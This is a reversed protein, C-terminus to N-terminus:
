LPAVGDDHGTHRTQVTQSRRFIVFGHHNIDDRPLPHGQGIKEPAQRFNLVFAIINGKRPATKPHPPINHINKRGVVFIVRPTQGKEPIFQFANLLKLDEGALGRLGQATNPNKGIGVVDRGGGRQTLGRVLDLGIQLFADDFKFVFLFPDLGM